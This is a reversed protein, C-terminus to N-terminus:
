ACVTAAAAAALGTLSSALMRVLTGGRGGDGEPLLTGVEGL